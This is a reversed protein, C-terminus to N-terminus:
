KLLKEVGIGKIKNDEDTEIKIQYIPANTASETPEFLPSVAQYVLEGSILFYECRIIMFHSMIYTLFNYDVSFWEKPITFIGYRNEKMLSDLTYNNQNEQTM